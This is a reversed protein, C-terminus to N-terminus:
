FLYNLSQLDLYLLPLKYRFRISEIFTKRKLIFPDFLRDMIVIWEFLWLKMMVFM